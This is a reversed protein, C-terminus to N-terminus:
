ALMRVEGKEFCIIEKVITETDGDRWLRETRATCNNKLEREKFKSYVKDTIQENGNMVFAKM